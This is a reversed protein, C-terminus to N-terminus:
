KMDNILWKRLSPINSDGVDDPRWGAPTRVLKLSISRVYVDEITFKATAVASARGTSRVVIQPTTMTEHEQCDCIPDGDLGLDSHRAHFKRNANLVRMLSPSYVSEDSRDGPGAFFNPDSEFRAYLARVFPEAEDAPAAGGARSAAV